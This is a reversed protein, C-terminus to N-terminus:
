PGNPLFFVLYYYAVPATFLISDFRDLVGGHGPLIGGFDKLGLDRKIASESLDGVQGLVSLIPGLILCHYWPLGVWMGWLLSMSTAAIVGGIAGEVTKKPSLNPALKTKGFRMGIFYAGTDTMWTVAFVYLVLWAGRAAEPLTFGFLSLQLTGPLSRLFILYSLLWGVYVVGLFTVGINALPEPDRRLVQHILTAIVLLALLAPLFQVLQGRSVSWAAFQLLVIAIYALGETPRFGRLKVARFYEGAGVGACIAVAITFPLASLGVGGEAFVLLLLIPIGVLSSLVRLILGPPMTEAARRAREQAEHASERALELAREQAERFRNQADTLTEQAKGQAERAKEQAIGQAKHIDDLLAM